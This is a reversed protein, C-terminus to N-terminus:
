LTTICALQGHVTSPLPDKSCLVILIAGAGIHRARKKVFRSKKHNHVWIGCCSCTCTTHSSWVETASSGPVLLRRCICSLMARCNLAGLTSSNQLERRTALRLM